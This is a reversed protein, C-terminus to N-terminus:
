LEDCKLRGNSADHSIRLTKLVKAQRLAANLWVPYNSIPLVISDLPRPKKRRVTPHIAGALGSAYAYTSVSPSYKVNSSSRRSRQVARECAIVHYKWRELRM